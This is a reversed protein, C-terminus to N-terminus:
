FYHTFEERRLFPPLFADRRPSPRAMKKRPLRPSQRSSSHGLKPFHDDEPFPSLEPLFSTKRSPSTKGSPLNFSSPMPLDFPDFNPFSPSPLLEQLLSAMEQDEEQFPLLPETQPTQKTLSIFILIPHQGSPGAEEEKPRTPPTSTRVSFRHRPSVTDKRSLAGLTPLHDQSRHSALIKDMLSSISFPNMEPDSSLDFPAKPTSPSATTVKDLNSKSELNFDHRWKRESFSSEEPFFPIRFSKRSLPFSDQEEFDSIIKPSITSQAVIPQGSSSPLKRFLLMTKPRSSQFGYPASYDPFNFAETQLLITALIVGCQFSFRM